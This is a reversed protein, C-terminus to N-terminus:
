RRTFIKGIAKMIIKVFFIFNLFCKWKKSMAPVRDGPDAESSATRWALWINKGM